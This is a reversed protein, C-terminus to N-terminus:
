PKLPAFWGGPVASAIPGEFGTSSVSSIGFIWDDARVGGLTQCYSKIGAAQMMAREQATLKALTAKEFEASDLTQFPRPEWDPLNTRRKWLRYSNAGPVRGWCIRTEASVAGDAGPGPPMPANALRDLARINLATVKALYAFDMEDVTDGFRVGNETRVDQHQHEYDEIAVSFRIAPYGAELFPLHDGGRGMRDSRWVERVMLAGSDLGAVFRSLNRSPSDNEGGMRRAAARLKDDADARPGESFVRVHMNEVVGDSGRSGGVIDNNLVAKVTWGQEKAYDALLKGGLLGQEEGSLVAYVITAPFKRKSLVRAAELVLATGSANDNAGPADATANLPDSVRSDIHGQVIVVENPRESGRQIAVVNVLRTPVPVREGTVMREPLVIELCGGCADGTKRLEAEAWRRAAGIGRKPDDQSSLTHRTGFSVQRLVDNRLRAESVKEQAWVMSPLAVLLIAALVRAIVDSGCRHM